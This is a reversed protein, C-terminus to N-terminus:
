LEEDDDDSSEDSGGEEDKLEEDKKKPAEVSGKKESEPEAKEEAADETKEVSLYGFSALATNFIDEVRYFYWVPSKCEVIYIMGGNKSVFTRHLFSSRNSFYEFVLLKGSANDKLTVTPTEILSQVRSDILRLGWKKEHVIKDVDDNSKLVEIKVSTNFNNTLLLVHKSKDDTITKKWTGPIIIRYNYESNTYNVFNNGLGNASYFAFIVASTLLILLNRKM